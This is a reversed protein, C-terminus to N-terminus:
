LIQKLQFNLFDCSTLFYDTNEIRIRPEMHFKTFDGHVHGYIVTEVGFEGYCQTQRKYVDELFELSVERSELVPVLYAGAAALGLSLVAIGKCKASIHFYWSCLFVLLFVAFVVWEPLSPVAFGLGPRDRICM